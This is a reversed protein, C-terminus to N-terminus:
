NKIITAERQAQRDKEREILDIARDRDKQTADEQAKRSQIMLNAAAKDEDSKLKAATQRDGAAIKEREIQLKERDIQKDIMEMQFKREAAKEDAMVKMQAESMRSQAKLNEIQMQGQILAQNPDPQPQPPPLPGEPPENMYGDASKMGVAKVLKEYTNYMDRPTVMGNMGGFQFLLEKQEVLLARLYAVKQDKNGHGLGVDIQVDMEANWSRPDMTVFENRIRIAKPVDQHQVLLRLITKFLHRVGTEAFIRAFMELRQNAAAKQNNSATATENSLVDADIGTVAESVGTRESIMQDIGQLMPFSHQAVFPHAIERISGMKKVRKIGGARSMLLDDMSVINNIDVEREPNNALYLNDLTQRMIVTKIRQLPSVLDALSLGYARHPIPIPEVLSFPQHECPEKDLITSGVWIVKYRTAIGTDDPDIYIYSEHLTLEKMAPDAREDDHTSNGFRAEEEGQPDNRDDAPLGMIVDRDYGQSILDSRTISPRHELYTAEDPDSGKRSVFFEEPPICEVKIGGKNVTREIEINYFVQRPIPNGMMDFDFAQAQMIGDDGEMEVIENGFEDTIGTEKITVTEDNVFVQYQDETLGQYEEETTKEKEEYFTKVVGQKSLLADKFWTNLILFGNNEKYFVHNALDTAQDAAQVDEPGEPVYEVIRDGSAFVSLLSPMAWEITELVERTIISSRGEQEDGYASGLYREMADERELSVEDTVYQEAAYSERRVKALLDTDHIM